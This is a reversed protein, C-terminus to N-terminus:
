THTRLTDPTLQHKGARPRNPRRRSVPRHGHSGGREPVRSAHHVTRQGSRHAARRRFWDGLVYVRIFILVILLIVVVVFVWAYPIYRPGRPILALGTMM